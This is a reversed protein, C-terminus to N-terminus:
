SRTDSHCRTPALEKSLPQAHERILPWLFPSTLCKRDIPLENTRLYFIATHANQNIQSNWYTQIKYQLKSVLTVQNFPAPLLLCFASPRVPHSSLKYGRVPEDQQEISPPHPYPQISHTHSHTHTHKHTHSRTPHTYRIRVVTPFDM